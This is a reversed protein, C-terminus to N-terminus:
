LPHSSELHDKAKALQGLATFCQSLNLLLVGELRRADPVGLDRLLDRARALQSIAADIDGSFRHLLGIEATAAVVGRRDHRAKQIRLTRPRDAPASAFRGVRGTVRGCALRAQAEAPADGSACAAAVAIEALRLEDGWEGHKAWYPGACALLDRALWPTAGAGSAGYEAAAILQTRELDLWAHAG